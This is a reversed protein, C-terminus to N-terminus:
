ELAADIRPFVTVRILPYNFTCTLSPSTLYPQNGDQNESVCVDCVRVCVCVCVCVCVFLYGAYSFSGDVERSTQNFSSLLAVLCGPTGTLGEDGPFCSCATLM